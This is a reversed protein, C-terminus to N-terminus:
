FDPPKSLIPCSLAPWSDWGQAALGEALGEAM